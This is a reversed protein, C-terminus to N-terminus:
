RFRDHPNAFCWSKDQSPFFTWLWRLSSWMWHVRLRLTDEVGELKSLDLFVVLKWSFIGRTRGMSVSM